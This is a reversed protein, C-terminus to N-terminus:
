GQPRVLRISYKIIDSLAIMIEGEAWAKLSILQYNMDEHSDRLVHGTASILADM